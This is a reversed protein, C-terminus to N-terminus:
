ETIRKDEGSIIDEDNELPAAATDPNVLAIIQGSQDESQTIKAKKTMKRKVLRIIMFISVLSYLLM